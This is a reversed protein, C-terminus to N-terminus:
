MKSQLHTIHTEFSLKCDLWVGLYKYNDVYELDSGDLTTISTPRAPSPLSRNFIMCNSAMLYYQTKGPCQPGPLYISTIEHSQILLYSTLDWSESDSPPRNFGM